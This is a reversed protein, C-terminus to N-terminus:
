SNQDVVAAAQLLWDGTLHSSGVSSRDSLFLVLWVFAQVACIRYVLIFSARMYIHGGTAGIYTDKRVGIGLQTGGV